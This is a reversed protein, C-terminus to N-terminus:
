FLLELNVYNKDYANGNGKTVIGPRRAMIM